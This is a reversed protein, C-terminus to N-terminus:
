KPRRKRQIIFFAGGGLMLALGVWMTTTIALNVGTQIVTYNVVRRLKEPATYHEDLRLKIVEGSLTFGELTEVEKIYYLGPEIGTISVVGDKGSTYIGLSKGHENELRFKVGALPAGSADVKMFEYHNPINVCMIPEPEKWDDGVYFRKDEMRSYGEPAATERIIWEGYSFKTFTFVGNLDSTVTEVVKGTSAQILSFEVGPLAKGSPDVKICSIRKLHNVLMAIPKGTNQYGEGLTVRVAKRSPLYGDPASLEHITYTGYPVHTFRVIGEADSVATMLLKSEMDYLGFRAGPLVAGDQDVKSLLLETPCNTITALPETPNIYRGDITVPTRTYDRIYGPLPELEQIFYSGYPIKEFVALGNEDTVAKSVLTEDERYLGFVVGPMPKHQEDVKLISFRNYDDQVATQGEVKGDENVTFALETTSLAYGEPALIERFTYEGPVAHFSPTYGDDGTYARLVTEKEANWVEVLTGPLYDSGTIDTKAINVGTHILENHIPEDLAVRIVNDESKHDPTINVPFHEETLQWGDPASLEKIYYAGHPYMGSFTLKGDADTIGVAVMSDAELATDGYPIADANFLGFIFGEGPVTELQSHLMDREMPQYTVVDKTKVMSVEAPLYANSATLKAEIVAAQNDAATLVVEQPAPDCIYGDPAATEVVYYRGLPLLPSADAGSGSTTITAALADKDFWATGDKGTIPEAAYIEFVAGKPHGNAYVPVHVTYGLSDATDVFGTLVPGLKEVIIKGKIPTNTVTLEQVASEAFSTFPLCMLLCLCALLLAPIRKRLTNM